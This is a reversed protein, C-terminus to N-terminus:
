RGTEAPKRRARQRRRLAATGHACAQRRAGAPGDFRFGRGLGLRGLDVVVHFDDPDTSSPVAYVAGAGDKWAVCEVRDVLQLAKADVSM